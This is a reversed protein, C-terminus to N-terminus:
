FVFFDGASVALGSPLVAFQVAAAAGSGDPDFLLAGSVPDYLIRDDADLASTGTRFAGPALFGTALGSFENDDLGIKDIGVQFDPLQDINGAHLSTTFTFTDVGARGHLIDAGGRGDLVNAGDNGFLENARANGTLNIAYTTEFGNVGLREVDDSLEHSVSTYVLDFGGGSNEVIADGAHDVFYIDDGGHGRMIDAGAGGDMVNAGDNGWMENDLGNGTLNIAFSTTFGNVGLREVNAGLTYGISTFVTDLGGGASEVVIDGANDVIFTDNDGFGSMIDAGGRGDMVNVGDNGWMENDLANGNLSIGFTTSFGNVGLREVDDSLSYTVSAFVTDLGNGASEAVADSIDDVIYVDDGVGGYMTDAGTGGDVRDNGSRGNLIDSGGAGSIADAENTGNLLDDDGAGAIAISAAGVTGGLITRAGVGPDSNPADVFISFAGTGIAASGYLLVDDSAHLSISDDVILSSRVAIDGGSRIALNYDAPNPNPSGIDTLTIAASITM